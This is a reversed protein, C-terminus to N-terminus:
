SAEPELGEDVGEILRIRIMSSSNGIPTISEIQIPVQGHSEISPDDFVAHGTLIITSPDILHPPVDVRVVIMNTNLPALESSPELIRIAPTSAPHHPNASDPSDGWPEEVPVVQELTFVSVESYPSVQSENKARVRWYYIGDKFDFAPSVRTERTETHWLIHYFSNSGSIDIEYSIAGDVPTWEFTPRNQVLTSNAPYVPVPAPLGAKEGTRFKWTYYGLLPEGLATFIGEKSNPDMSGHIHGVYSTRSDLPREPILTAVRDKYTIERLKVPVGASTTIYITSPTLSRPDIDTAFRVLIHTNTDVNEELHKPATSIVFNNFGM